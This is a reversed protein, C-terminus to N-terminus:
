KAKQIERSADLVKKRSLEMDHQKKAHRQAMDVIEGEKPSEVAFDCAKNGAKRCEFRQAM